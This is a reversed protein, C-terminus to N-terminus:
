IHILSLVLVIRMGMAALLAVDHALSELEGAKVLEGPFGIVFTKNRFAHIYPAVSRLWSVFDVSEVSLGSSEGGGPTSPTTTTTKSITSSLAKANM